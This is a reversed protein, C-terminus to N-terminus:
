RTRPHEQAFARGIFRKIKSVAKAFARRLKNTTEIVKALLTGMRSRSLKILLLRQNRDSLSEDSIISSSRRSPVYHGATVGSSASSLITAATLWPILESNVITNYATQLEVPDHTTPATSTRIMDFAEIYNERLSEELDLEEGSKSHPRDHHSNCRVCTQPKQGMIYCYTSTDSRSSTSLSWRVHIRIIQPSM